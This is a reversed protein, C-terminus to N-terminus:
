YWVRYDFHINNEECFRRLNSFFNLSFRGDSLKKRMIAIFRGSTDAGLTEALLNTNAEDFYYQIEVQGNRRNREWEEFDVREIQLKGGCIFAEVVSFPKGDKQTEHLVKSYDRLM